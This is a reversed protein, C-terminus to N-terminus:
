KNVSMTNKTLSQWPMEIDIPVPFVITSDNINALSNLTQLYKLQLAYPSEALTQSAKQLHRATKIEGEAKILKAKAERSAEAEAAMARKLSEPITIEEIQVREVKIGWRKTGVDLEKQLQYTLADKDSLLEQMEDQGFIKTLSTQVLRGTAKQPNEVNNISAHADSIHYFIVADVCLSVSDKTIVEQKPVDLIKSRIDVLIFHEILPLVLFMGPGKTRSYIGLRTIHAKEGQQAVKVCFLLSFPLTVVFVMWSLATLVWAMIKIGLSPPSRKEIMSDM